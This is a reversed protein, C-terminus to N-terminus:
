TVTLGRNTTVEALCGDAELTWYKTMRYTQKTILKVQVFAGVKKVRDGWQKRSLNSQLKIGKRNQM